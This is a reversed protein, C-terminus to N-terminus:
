AGKIELLKIILYSAMGSPAAGPGFGADHGLEVALDNTTRPGGAVLIFHSRPNEAEFLEILETFNRSTVWSGLRRM